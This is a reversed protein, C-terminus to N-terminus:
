QLFHQSKDSIEMENDNVAEYHENHSLACVSVSLIPM